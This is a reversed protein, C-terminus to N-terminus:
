EAGDRRRPLSASVRYGGGPRPGAAFEGGLARAREGMGAVGSGSGTGSTDASMGTGESDTDGNGDHSRASGARGEDDVRVRVRGDEFEIRVVAARAGSHRTVNTLAEQVIRYAALDVAPPLPRMGHPLELSVDIGTRRMHGILEDLGALSPAPATPAEEDVQRLVGLTERLERLADRSTRKIADLSQEAREPARAFGHLAAASQVNILSLHHGLVDHLERAIRLREEVARQRAEAELTRQTEEARRHAEALFAHRNYVMGGMAVVAVICGFLLFLAADALHNEDSGIESVGLVTAFGAATLTALLLHGGAAASYLAVAFTVFMPGDALVLPYYVMTAVVTLLLVTVPHDRRVFLAACAAVVPTLGPVDVADLTVMDALTFAIVLGGLLATFVTDLATGRPMWAPIRPLSGM